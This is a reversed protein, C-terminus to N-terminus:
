KKKTFFNLLGYSSLIQVILISIFPAIYFNFVLCLISTILGILVAYVLKDKKRVPSLYSDPALFVLSALLGSINYIDIDLVTFLVLFLSLVLSSIIFISKKYILSSALMLYSVLVFILSSTYISGVSRGVALDFYSFNFQSNQEMVNLFINQNFIYSIILLIIYFLLSFNIKIKTKRSVFFFLILLVSYIVLDIGPPVFLSILIWRLDLLTIKIKKYKIFNTIIILFLPLLLVIIPTILNLISAEKFSLLLYVNKYLGYITLLLISALYVKVIDKQGYKRSLFTKNM